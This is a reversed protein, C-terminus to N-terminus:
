PEMKLNIPPDEGLIEPQDIHLNERFEDLREAIYHNKSKGHNELIKNVYPDEHGAIRVEEALRHEAEDKDLEAYADFELNSMKLVPKTDLYREMEEDTSFQSHFEDVDDATYDDEHNEYDTM